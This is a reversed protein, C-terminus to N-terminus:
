GGEAAASWAAAYAALAPDPPAQPPSGAAAALQPDATLLAAGLSTGTASAPETAVARNVAAALMAVFQPNAAFPGEVFVPGGAGIIELCTATVLALYFSATTARVGESLESEPVTWRHERGMFPGASPEVAPLLLICRRLVEAVDEPGAAARGGTLRAFERGGMFRASPVPDGFANVNVLTDRGPDLAGTRGGVAMSIVWTGTSVVAFPAARALLHPLLSANSDHIGCYVPTAPPLGTAAAVEATVPGLVDAARRMPPFRPGWGLREVLSSFRRLGPEWLDSHAGISTVECARVGSLRFGWYQPYPLVTADRAEPFRRFQWYLQAGLNLGGPLRPTGTEAFPPRLADYEAALEEPGAYEYDLIPLELTGDAAVLAAASGHTTAVLADVGHRAHLERISGLIFRWLADADAHPYPPGPLVRNPTTRVDIERRREVDVLAAKANTKGIDIVLVRAM